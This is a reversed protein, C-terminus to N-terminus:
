FVGPVLARVEKRFEAYQAGFVEGLFREEIGIKRILSALCLLAGIVGRWEGLAIASGVIALLLGTYIPHRSYRYPGTRILEHGEKVTAVGSWNGGLHNRAWLAYGLGALLLAVGTVYQPWGM